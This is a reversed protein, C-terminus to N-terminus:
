NKNKTLEQLIKQIKNNGFSRTQMYGEKDVIVIAPLGGINYQNAVANWEPIYEPNISTIIINQTQLAKQAKQLDETVPCSNSNFILCTLEAQSFNINKISPASEQSYVIPSFQQLLSDNICVNDKYIYLLTYEILEKSHTKYAFEYLYSKFFNQIYENSTKDYLQAIAAKVTSLDTLDFESFYSDLAIYFYPTALLRPDTFNQQKFCNKLLFDNKSLSDNPYAAIYLEYIPLDLLRIIELAFLSEINKNNYITTHLTKIQSYTAANLSDAMHKRYTTDLNFLEKKEKYISSHIANMQSLYDYFVENEKSSIFKVSDLLHNADSTIFISENNYIFDLSENTPFVIRYVGTNCTNSLTYKFASNTKTITDVLIQNDALYAYLFVKEFTANKINLTLNHEIKKDSCSFLLLSLCVWLSAKFIQTM